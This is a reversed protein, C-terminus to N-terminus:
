LHEKMEEKAAEAAKKVEEVELSAFKANILWGDKEKLCTRELGVIKIINENWVAM